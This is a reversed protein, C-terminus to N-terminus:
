RNRTFRQIHAVGLQGSRAHHPIFFPMRTEEELRFAPGLRARVAAAGRVAEGGRLFGGLWNDPPTFTELWTFPSGVLLTGGPATVRAMEDLAGAPDAVRDVLNLAAVTAFAGDPFPLALGDAVAFRANRPAAFPVDWDRLLRGEVVTRFRAHGERAVGAAGRILTRSFDVGFAVRHDRALEFTVRGTAAGIDLAAADPRPTWLRRVAFPYREALPPTREGLIEALPDTGPYHFALYEERTSRQEYYGTGEASDPLDDIYAAGPKKAM